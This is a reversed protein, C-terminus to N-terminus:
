GSLLICRDYDIISTWAQSGLSAVTGLGQFDFETQETAELQELGYAHPFGINRAQIETALRCSTDGRIWKSFPHMGLRELVM